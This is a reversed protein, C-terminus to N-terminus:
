GPPTADEDKPDSGFRLVHGDPDIVKMEYAWPYNTPPELFKAGRAVYQQYLPEIDQVGIWVWTGPNGQDRQCLMLTKDDRSISAMETPDDDGWDVAFGLVDVYYRISDRVSNVCLIPTINEFTVAGTGTTEGSNM